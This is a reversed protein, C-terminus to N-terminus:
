RETDLRDIFVGEIQVVQLLILQSKLLLRTALGRRGWDRWGGEETGYSPNTLHILRYYKSQTGLYIQLVVLKM